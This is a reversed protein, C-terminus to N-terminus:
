HYKFEREKIEIVKNDQMKRQRIWNGKKDLDYSYTYAAKLSGDKKFQTEATMNNNADFKYVVRGVVTNDPGTQIWEIKNGNDDYKFDYKFFLTGNGNYATRTILQGKEDYQYFHKYNFLPNGGDRKDQQEVRNGKADTRIASTMDVRGGEVITQESTLFGNVDYTSKVTSILKGDGKYSSLDTRNGNEDYKFVLKTTPNKSTADALFVSESLVEVKGKLRQASVDSKKEKAGSSLPAATNSASGAATATNPGTEKEGADNSCSSIIIM